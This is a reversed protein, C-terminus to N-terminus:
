DARIGADEIVKGISAIEARMTADLEKPTSAVVDSGISFFKEKVDEQRLVRVIQQNLQNIIAAPTKAPAFMVNMAVSAYGPLGSAAVTPVGPVLPTPQATTVALAKLRGSKLQAAVSGATAFMVQVQNSVVANVAPGAGNYPIRVINVGAMSKFLEAPLHSSSGTAGSAYNLEGPRAKALAILEKISNAALSPHAVVIVPIRDTITIPSYDQLADYPTKQLLPIVWLSSSLLLVTYGDPAANRVIVREVITPRNDVVISWGVSRKLEEGILRAAFDGGGGVSSTLVRIPKVPFKQASAIGVDLVLLAHAVVCAMFCLKLM